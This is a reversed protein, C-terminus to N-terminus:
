SVIASVPSSPGNSTLPDIKAFIDKTQGIVMQAAIEAATKFTIRGAQEKIDMLNNFFLKFSEQQLKEFAAEVALGSSREWIEDAKAIQHCARLFSGRFSSYRLASFVRIAFALLEALLPPRRPERLFAVGGPGLSTRPRTGIRGLRSPPSCSAAQVTAFNDQGYHLNYKVLCAHLNMNPPM